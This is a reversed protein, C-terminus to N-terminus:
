GLFLDTSVTKIPLQTLDVTILVIGHAQDWVLLNSVAVQTNVLLRAPGTHAKTERQEQCVYKSTTHSVQRGRHSELYFNHVLYARKGGRLNCKQQSM